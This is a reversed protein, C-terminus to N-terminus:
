RTIKLNKVVSYLEAAKKNKEFYERAPKILKDLEIACSSKLDMPHIKKDVFVRELEQYSGFEIDGGFKPSREIKLSKINRFIIYRFYELIPNGEVIGEPCYGKGIKEKLEKLNDHMYICTKPDSKSMKSAILTEDDSDKKQLGQLGLLIHHHAAVPKKWKYKDAVDRALMNARRQDMGLQCIDVELEFIDAVQMSPYFLQATSIEEGERRGAITLSKKTRNISTEKAVRLVRDWYNVSDMLESAWIIEVKKTDIGCAKWVEIFYKGATQIKELDGGLKNNIFGFYDALYLKFHVGAKIMNRLNTARLLGFHIPAVGSPEFGDYAVPKNNTEFIHRLDEETVIEEAFEKILELKEEVDM